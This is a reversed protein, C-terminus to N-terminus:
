PASWTAEFHQQGPELLGPLALLHSVDVSTSGETIYVVGFALVARDANWFLSHLEYWGEGGCTHTCDVDDFAYVDYRTRDFAPYPSDGFTVTGRGDAGISIREGDIEYGSVTAPATLEVAPLSAAVTHDEAGLECTGSAAEEHMRTNDTGTLWVERISGADDCLFWLAYLADPAVALTQYLTREDHARWPIERYVVAATERSRIEVTGTADAVAIEGVNGSGRGTLSVPPVFPVEGDAPPVSLVTGDSPTRGGHGSHHGRSENDSGPGSEGDTTGLCGGLAAAGVAGFAGLLDRRTRARRRGRTPRRM